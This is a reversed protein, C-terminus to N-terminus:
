KELFKITINEPDSPFVTKWMPRIVAEAKGVNREDIVIKGFDKKDRGALATRIKGEDVKGVFVVDGALHFRIRTLDSLVVNDVQDIFSFTLTSLNPALFSNGKYDPLSTEILKQVLLETNFFFVSVTARMSIKATDDTTFEQPIEEFKLVISGPFFSVGEPIQARAKEVSIKKLAEKLEEQTTTVAEESPVKVIGSFGGDIPSEEKCYPKACSRATFKGYRPDGKFGPITFDGLGINYEKGPVDAYVVAEVFGAEVVKGGSMKAGPVVVSEDIRFIKHDVSELRTNKILRQKEGNYANFIVVRGSAKKQIKTEVTSPIEKSKEETIGMFQFILTDQDGDKSVTFDRNVTANRTIPEIEITASSFYNAIAFGVGLLIAAAFFWLVPHSGVLKASKGPVGKIVNQQETKKDWGKEFFPNKEIPQKGETTASMVSVAKQPNLEPTMKPRRIIDNKPVTVDKMSKPIIDKM